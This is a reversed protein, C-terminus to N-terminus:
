RFCEVVDDIKLIMKAIETAMTLQAVKGSLPEIVGAEKMNNSGSRNCDVGWVGKENNNEALALLLQVTDEGSLGANKALTRPLELLAAAYARILEAEVGSKSDAVLALRRACEVEAAGGGCVFSREDSSVLTKAVGFADDFSRRLEACVPQSGAALVLTCADRAPCEEVLLLRENEKMRTLSFGLGNESNVERVAGCAGLRCTALDEARAVIEAGTALSLLELDNGPVWSVAAIGARALLHGAEEDFGWQCFLATVKRAVLSEVLRLFFRQEFAAAAVFDSGSAVRLAHKTKPKPPELPFAALAVVAAPVLKPMAPNYLQKELLIGQVLKAAMRGDVATKQVVKLLESHVGMAGTRALETSSLTRAAEVAAHALETAVSKAVKSNLATEVAKLVHQTAASRFVCQTSLWETVLDASAAFTRVVRSPSVKNAVLPQAQKLLAACFLVTGTTGDGSASDQADSLNTLLQGVPSKLGAKALITAGDNTLTVENDEDVILKDFGQPGFSGAVSEAIEAVNEINRSLTENKTKNTTPQGEVVIVQAGFQNPINM